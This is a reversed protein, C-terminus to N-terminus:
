INLVKIIHDCMLKVSKSFELVHPFKQVPSRMLNELKNLQDSRGDFLYQSKGQVLETHSLGRRVLPKCDFLMAEVLCYGFNEEISHSVMVKARALISHYEQKTLGARITIIGRKELDQAKAVLEPSNSRLTSRGTCVEFKWTPHAQKATEFLELTEGPRKENDFRNTLVVLNDKIKSQELDYASLFIPNPVVQIKGSLYSARFPALRRQVFATKHYQSGVFVLDMAAVWGVETFRQYPAAIEFADGLTYSAAHLFGTLTVKINNMQALLRVAEIGWFEIDGFFFVTGNAIKGTHFMESIQQLQTWKYHTTSNIDLFTGVKITNHELVKGDIVTVEFGSARFEVPFLDYWQRTYREDLPEIPIYILPIM